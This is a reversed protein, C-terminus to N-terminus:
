GTVIESSPQNATKKKLEVLVSRLSPKFEIYELGSAPLRFGEHVKFHQMYNLNKINSLSLLKM